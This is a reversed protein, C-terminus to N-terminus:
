RGRGYWDDDDATGAVPEPRRNMIRANIKGQCAGCVVRRMAAEGVAAPDNHLIAASGKCDRCTKEHGTLPTRAQEDVWAIYAEVRPDSPPKTM